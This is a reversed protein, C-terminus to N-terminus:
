LPSGALYWRGPTIRGGQSRLWERARRLAPEQQVWLAEPEFGCDVGLRIVWEECALRRVFELEVDAEMAELLLTPTFPKGRRYRQHPIFRSRNENWWGRWTAESQSIRSATTVHETRREDEFLEDPDSDEHVELQECLGAGTLLELAQAASAARAPSSLHALLVPIATPVGLVGLASVAEDGAEETESLAALRLTAEPNGSLGVWRCAWAPFTKPSLLSSLVRHEGLRLLALAAASRLPVPDVELCRRLLNAAGPTRMRGLCWVGALANASRGDKLAQEVWPLVWEAARRRYGLATVLVEVAEPSCDGLEAPAPLAGGPMEHCLADRFATVKPLDQTDLRCLLEAIAQSAGLRSLTRVAVYAEEADGEDFRRICLATSSVSTGLADLYADLRRELRRLERRSLQGEGMRASRLRYLFAAEELYEDLLRATFADRTLM